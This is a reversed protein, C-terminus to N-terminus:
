ELERAALRHPQASCDPEPASHRRGEVPRVRGGATRATPQYRNDMTIGRYRITGALERSTMHNDFPRAPGGRYYWILHSAGTAITWRGHFGHLYHKASHTPPFRCPIACSDITRPSMKSNVRLPRTIRYDADLLESRACSRREFPQRSGLLTGGTPPKRCVRRGERLAPRFTRGGPPVRPADRRDHWRAM